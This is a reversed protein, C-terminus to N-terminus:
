DNSNFAIKKKRKKKNNNTVKKNKLTKKNTSAQKNKSTEKGKAPSKKTTTTKRAADSTGTTTKMTLGKGEKQEKSQWKVFEDRLDEFDKVDENTLGTSGERNAKFRKLLMGNVFYNCFVNVIKSNRKPSVPLSILFHNLRDLTKGYGADNTPREEFQIKADFVMEYLRGFLLDFQKKSEDSEDNKLKMDECLRLTSGFAM